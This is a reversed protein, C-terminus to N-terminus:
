YYIDLAAATASVTEGTIDCPDVERSGLLCKLGAEDNTLVCSPSSDNAKLFCQKTKSLRRNYAIFFLHYCTKIILM